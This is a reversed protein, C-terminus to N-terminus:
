NVCTDLLDQNSVHYLKKFKLILKMYKKKKAIKSNKNNMWNVSQIWSIIAYIRKRKSIKTGDPSSM